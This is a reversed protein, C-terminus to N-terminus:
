FHTLHSEANQALDALHCTVARDKGAFRARARELMPESFDILVASASPHRDLVSAALAGDGCGLDLVSKVEPLAADILRHAIDLQEEIMPIAARTQDVYTDANARKRWASM